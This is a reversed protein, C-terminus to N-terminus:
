TKNKTVIKQTLGFQKIKFDSLIGKKQEENQKNWLNELDILTSNDEDNDNRLRM